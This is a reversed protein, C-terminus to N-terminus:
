VETQAIATAGGIVLLLNKPNIGALLFGTGASKPPTFSDITDMWKPVAPTEGEKRRTRGQRPAVLLLLLGLVLKLWNVWTAPAGDETADSPDAILLVLGGIVALGLAWGLVFAIGNAKAKPTVLMLVLAVVPMPSLLVGVAFPLMQGIANGMPAFSGDASTLAM